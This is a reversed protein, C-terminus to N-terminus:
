LSSTEQPPKLLTIRLQVIVLTHRVGVLSDVDEFGPIQVCLIFCQFSTRALQVADKCQVLLHSTLIKGTLLFGEKALTWTKPKIGNEKQCVYYPFGPSQLSWDRQVAANSLTVLEGHATDTFHANTACLDIVVKRPAPLFSETVLLDSFCEKTMYFAQRQHEQGIDWYTDVVYILKTINAFITFANNSNSRYKYQSVLFTHSLCQFCRYFRSLKVSNCFWM